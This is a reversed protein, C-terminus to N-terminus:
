GGVFDKKPEDRNIGLRGPATVKPGVSYLALSFHLSRSSLSITSALMSSNNNYDLALALQVSATFCAHLEPSSMLNQGIVGFFPFPVM